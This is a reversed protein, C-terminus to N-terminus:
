THKYGFNRVQALVAALASLVELVSNQVTESLSMCSEFEERSIGTGWVRLQSLLQAVMNVQQLQLSDKHHKIRAFQEALTSICGGFLAVALEYGRYSDSIISSCDNSGQCESYLDKLAKVEGPDQETYDDLTRANPLELAAGFYIKQSDSIISSCANSAQCESYSDKLAKVEGPDQETYDDLTRANPLELAAEFDGM